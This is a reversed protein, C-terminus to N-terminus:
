APRRANAVRQIVRGARNLGASMAALDVESDGLHKSLLGNIEPSMEEFIAEVMPNNTRQIAKRLLRGALESAQVGEVVVTRNVKPSVHRM